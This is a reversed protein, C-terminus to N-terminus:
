QDRKNWFKKAIVPLLFFEAIGLVAFVIGVWNLEPGLMETQFVYIGFLAVVLSVFRFLNLMLFRRKAEQETM